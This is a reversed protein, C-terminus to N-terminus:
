LNRLHAGIKRLHRCVADLVFAALVSCTLMLLNIALPHVRGNLFGRIQAGIDPHTFYFELSLGGLVSLMQVFIAGIKGCYKSLLQVTKAALPVGSVTILYAPLFSYSEPVILLKADYYTLKM